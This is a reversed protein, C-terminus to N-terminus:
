PTVEFFYTKRSLHSIDIRLQHFGAQLGIPIAVTFEDGSIAVGDSIKQGSITVYSNWGDLASGAITVITGAPGNLPTITNIEPPMFPASVDPIGLQSVRPAMALSADPSQDIQVVSVEYCVSLRYPQSFTSWIKTLEEMDLVSPTIKIQEHADTLGSVLYGNPVVPMEHLVRMAEGLIAHTNTNGNSQDNKAYPTMIYFLNLTLPPPRLQTPDDSAVQWDMNRQYPSEQVKYLFLNVRGNAQSEDPALLTVDVAPTLQIEGELFAKLSEGVMGIATSASM